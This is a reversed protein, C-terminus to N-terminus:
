AYLARRTAVIRELDHTCEALAPTEDDRRLPPRWNALSDPHVVTALELVHARLGYDHRLRDSDLWGHLDSLLARSFETSLTEGPACSAIVDPLAGSKWLKDLSDPWHRERAQTPLMALLEANGSAFEKARATLIAEIWDRDTSGVRERWGRYLAAKWDSKAAWALLEGANMGTHSVWWSLPVQRVLQYLWWAREGLTEHQPRTTEIAASSWAPDAQEPAECQWSRTLLGRKHTLLPALWAILRQAHTSHPLSALFRAALQRVDRSRDKLLSELLAEDDASLGHELVAVLEQREKAPMEGLQQQLLDRAGAADRARHQRLYAVRQALSGEEWAKPDSAADIEAMGDMAFRWDANLRALWRGRHGIVPLLAARLTQSRKGAELAQPLLNSPLVANVAAIRICAEYQLRVPGQAFALTLWSSWRHSEDLANTDAAAPEPLAIAPTDFSVAALRCATMAGAARSFALAADDGQGAIQALLAGIEGNGSLMATSDVGVLAQKLWPASM